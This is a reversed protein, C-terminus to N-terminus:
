ITMQAYFLAFLTGFQYINLALRDDTTSDPSRRSANQSNACTGIEYNQDFFWPQNRSQNKLSKKLMAM